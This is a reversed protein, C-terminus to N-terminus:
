PPAVSVVVCHETSLVYSRVQFTIPGTKGILGFSTFNVLLAIFCTGLVLTLTYAHKPEAAEAFCAIATECPVGAWCVCEAAGAVILAQTSQWPAIAAQLQTGSLGFEKQKTGQFIQFMATALVAACGFGFGLPKLQVDTVTAVGVGAIVLLLSLKVKGNTTVSYVVSNIALTVPVMILKTVQYFGVSNYTLSLNMFGISAFGAFAVKFKEFRPMQQEPRVYVGCVRLAEYFGITFVFHFFSLTMPYYFGNSFVRKNLLVLTVSSTVNGVAYLLTILESFDVM